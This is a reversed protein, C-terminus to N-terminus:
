LHMIYGSIEATGRMLDLGMKGTYKQNSEGGMKKLTQGMLNLTKRKKEAEREKNKHDTFSAVTKLTM